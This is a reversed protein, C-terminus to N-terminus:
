SAGSRDPQTPAGPGRLVRSAAKVVGPELLRRHDVLCTLKTWYKCLVITFCRSPKM